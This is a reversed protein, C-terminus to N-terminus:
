RAAGGTARRYESSSAPQNAEKQHFGRLPLARAPTGTAQAPRAPTPPRSGCPARGIRFLDKLSRIECYSKRFRWHELISAFVQKSSYRDPDNPQNRSGSPPLRARPSHSAQPLRCNIQRMSTPFDLIKIARLAMKQTLEIRLNPRGTCNLNRMSM